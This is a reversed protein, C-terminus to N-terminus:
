TGVSSCTLRQDVRGAPNSLRSGAQPTEAFCPALRSLLTQRDFPKPLYDTVGAAIADSVSRRTRDGSIMIFPIAIGQTRMYTLVSLGSDSGVHLDCLIAAADRLRDGVQAINDCLVVDVNVGLLFHRILNGIAPEDDVVVVFPRDSQKELVSAKASASAGPTAHRDVMSLRDPSEESGGAIRGAAPTESEAIPPLDFEAETALHEVLQRMERDDPVPVRLIQSIERTREIATLMCTKFRTSDMRGIREVLRRLRSNRQPSPLERLDAFHEGVQMAMLLERESEVCECEDFSRQHNLVMRTMAVPLEWKQLLAASVDAHTFGLEQQELDSLSLRAVSDARQVLRQYKSGLDHLLVTMGLDQLLGLVYATEFAPHGSMRSYASAMCATLISRMRLRQEVDAPLRRSSGSSLSLVHTSLVLSITHKIGILKIADHLSTVRSSLGSSSANILKLLEATIRPDSALERALDPVTAHPDSLFSSLRVFVQPMPQIFDANRVIQRAGYPITLGTLATSSIMGLTVESISEVTSDAPLVASVCLGAAQEQERGNLNGIVVALPKLLDNLLKGLIDLGTLFGTLHQDIVVADVRSTTMLRYLEDSGACYRAEAQDGQLESVISRGRQEPECLVAILKSSPMAFGAYDVSARTATVCLVDRIWQQNEHHAERLFGTATSVEHSSPM